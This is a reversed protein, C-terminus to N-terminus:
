PLLGADKARKVWLQATRPSCDFRESIVRYAEASAAADDRETAGKPHAAVIQAVDALSAANVRNRGRNAVRGADPATAGGTIRYVGPTVEHVDPRWGAAAFVQDRFASFPMNRLDSANVEAHEQNASVTVETCILRGSADTDITLAVDGYPTSALTYRGLEFVIDRVRARRGFGEVVQEEGM